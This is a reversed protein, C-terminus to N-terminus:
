FIDDLENLEADSLFEDDQMADTMEKIANYKELFHGHSSEGSVLEELFQKKNGMSLKSRIANEIFASKENEPVHTELLAVLDEPLSVTIERNKM